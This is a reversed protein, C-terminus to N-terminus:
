SEPIVRANKGLLGPMVILYNHGQYTHNDVAPKGGLTVGQWAPEAFLSHSGPGAAWAANAAALSQRILRIALGPRRHGTKSSFRM